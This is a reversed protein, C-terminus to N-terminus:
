FNAFFCHIPNIVVNILDVPPSSIVSWIPKNGIEIKVAMQSFINISQKFAELDM